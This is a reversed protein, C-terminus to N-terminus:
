FLCLYVGTLKQDVAPVDSREYNFQKNKFKSKYDRQHKLSLFIFFFSFSHVRENSVYCTGSVFAHTSNPDLDGFCPSLKAHLISVADSIMCSWTILCSTSLKSCIDRSM